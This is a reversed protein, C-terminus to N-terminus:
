KQRYQIETRTGNGIEYERDETQYPQIPVRKLEDYEEEEEEAEVRAQQQILCVYKNFTCFTYKIALSIGDLTYTCMHLTHWPETVVELVIGKKVYMGNQTYVEQTREDECKM